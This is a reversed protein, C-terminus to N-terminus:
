SLAEAIVQKANADDPFRSTLWHRLMDRTDVYAYVSRDDSTRLHLWVVPSGMGAGSQASAIINGDSDNVDFFSMRLGAIENDGLVHLPASVTGEVKAM